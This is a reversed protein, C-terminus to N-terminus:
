LAMTRLEGTEADTMYGRADATFSRSIQQLKDEAKQWGDFCTTKKSRPLVPVRTGDSYEVAVRIKPGAFKFPKRQKTTQTAQTM